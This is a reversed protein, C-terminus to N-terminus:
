GPDGPLVTPQGVTRLALGVEVWRIFRALIAGAMQPAQQIMWRASHAASMALVRAAREERWRRRGGSDTGSDTKQFVLASPAYALQHGRMIVQMCAMMDSVDQMRGGIMPKFGGIGRLFDARFALNTGGNFGISRFPHMPNLPRNMSLDYLRSDFRQTNEVYQRMKRPTLEIQSPLTLGTVCQVDPGSNFACAVETLWDADVVATEDIFAVIEGRAQKLGLNRAYPVGSQVERVYVVDAFRERVMRATSAPSETNDVVIIEYRPYHVEQLMRLTKDLYDLRERAVVVVSILPANRKIAAREVYYRPVRNYPLGFVELSRVPPLDDQRLYDAIRDGFHAWIIGSLEYPDVQFNTTYLQLLGLPRGYLRVLLLGQTYCRGSHFDTLLLCPLPRAVDVELLLAAEPEADGSVVTNTSPLYSSLDLKM